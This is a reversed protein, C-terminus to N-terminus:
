DFEPFGLASPNMLGQPDLSRKIDRILGATETNLSQFYPYTKGIQNSAAGSDAFLTVIEKRIVEVLARGDPNPAPERLSALHGPEPARRHVPLWEDHWRLVPEFSFAHNSIAVFLRSYTVGTKEMASAHKAFIGDTASIIAAADSHAVKANLAAWRDGDAGLIGNLPEFPNGRAAKPISNAIEKGNHREAISRCRAIDHRVAHDSDGACVVHLSFVGDEIFNRGAAALAAGERIGSAISKQSRIVGFLRKVDTALDSKGLSRRTTEPDFVYAEEVVGSRAIDSLAATTSEVGAFVFSASDVVEPKRIMRLTILTKVGLSGADHVFLGTLDPGYTRYFAKGNRFAAQGTRITRGTATVAELGLVIEAATGYRATGMFLAGNALGGGVTARRGSFTGFFPLRLGKSDLADFIQKWTVGAEVTITMDDENLEVIRDLHSLDVVVSEPRVPTYGSTYSMGGGRPVVAFGADTIARLAAPLSERDAPVVALQATVGPAYVDTSLFELEDPDRVVAANGLIRVLVVALRDAALHEIPQM